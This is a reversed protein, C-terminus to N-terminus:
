SRAVVLRRAAVVSAHLCPVSRKSNGMCLHGTTSWACVCLRRAALPPAWCLLPSAAVLGKKLSFFHFSTAHLHNFFRAVKDRAGCVGVEQKVAHLAEEKGLWFFLPGWKKSRMCREKIALYFFFAPGMQKVM